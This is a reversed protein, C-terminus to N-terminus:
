QNNLVEWKKLESLGTISYSLLKKNEKDLLWIFNTYETDRDFGGGRVIKYRENEFNVFKDNLILIDFKEKNTLKRFIM